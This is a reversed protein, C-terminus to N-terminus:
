SQGGLSKSPLKQLSAISEDFLRQQEAAGSATTLSARAIKLAQAVVEARLQDRAAELETEIMRRAERELRARRESAEALIRDREIEGARRMDERVRAIEDDVHALKQEYEALRLASEELMKAADDMGRVIDAKRRKLAAPLQKKALAVILAILIGWNILTAGFPVPM